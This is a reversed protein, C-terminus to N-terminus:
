GPGDGHRTVSGRHSVSDDPNKKQRTAGLIRLVERRAEDVGTKEVASFLQVSAVDALRARVQKLTALGAGRSLKDAKTLLVHTLLSQARSWELMIEDFETLPHRSDMVLVLGKLSEREEVYRTLLARWRQKMEEPVKAYGYGPLDVLREGTALSFFNILQTRGPTKSTRALVKRGTIANLASSKGANSRGAFAIEAGEDPPCQELRAASTLFAAEPFKLM